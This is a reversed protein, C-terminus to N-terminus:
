RAKTRRGKGAPREAAAPEGESLHLLDLAAGVIVERFRAALAPDSLDAGFTTRLGRNNIVTYALMNHILVVLAETDLGAPVAGRAQQARVYANAFDVFPRFHRAVGGQDAAHPQISAWLIVRIPRPDAVLGDFVLRLFGGIADRPSAGLDIQGAIRGFWGGCQECVAEWLQQKSRWHYNLAAGNVGARRCIERTSTGKFGHEAFVDLAVERIRDRTPEPARPPSAAAGKARSPSGSTARRPGKTSRRAPMAGDLRLPERSVLAREDHGRPARSPAAMARGPVGEQSRNL